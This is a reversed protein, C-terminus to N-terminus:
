QDLAGFRDSRCKGRALSGGAPAVSFSNSQRSTEGEKVTCLRNVRL